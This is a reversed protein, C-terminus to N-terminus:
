ISAVELWEVLSMGVDRVFIQTNIEVSSGSVLSRLSNTDPEDHEDGDTPAKYIISFSDNEIKKLEKQM